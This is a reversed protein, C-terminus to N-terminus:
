LSLGGAMKEQLLVAFRRLIRLSLSQGGPNYGLAKLHGLWNHMLEETLQDIRYIRFHHVLAQLHAISNTLARSSTRVPSLVIGVRRRDGETVAQGARIQCAELAM